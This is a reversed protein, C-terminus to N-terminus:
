IKDYETPVPTVPEDAFRISLIRVFRQYICGDISRNKRPDIPQSNRIMDVNHQPYSARSVSAGTVGPVSPCDLVGTGVPVFKM